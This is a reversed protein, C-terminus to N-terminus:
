DFHQLTQLKYYFLISSSNFIGGKKKENSTEWKATASSEGIEVLGIKGDTTGYLIEEGASFCYRKHEKRKKIPSIVPCLNSVETKITSSWSLHLDRYKLTM